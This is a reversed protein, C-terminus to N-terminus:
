AAAPPAKTQKKAPTGAAQATLGPRRKSPRVTRALESEGTAELLAHLVQATLAFMRDSHALARDKAVQRAEAERRERALATISRSLADVLASLSARCKEADFAFGALLCTEPPTWSALQSLVMSGLSQIQAPDKPMRGDLGLAHVSPEGFAVRLTDRLEWLAEAIKRAALDREVRVPQDDRLEALHECDAAVTQDIAEKLRGGLARLLATTAEPPLKLLGSLSSALREENNEVAAIVSRASKDRDIVQKSPM